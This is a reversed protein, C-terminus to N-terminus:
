VSEGLDGGGNSAVASDDDDGDQEFGDDEEGKDDGGDNEAIGGFDGTGEELQEILYNVIDDYSVDPLAYVTGIGAQGNVVVPFQWQNYTYDGNQKQGVVEGPGTVEVTNM